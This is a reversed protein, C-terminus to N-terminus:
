NFTKRISFNFTPRAYGIEIKRHTLASVDRPGAYYDSIRTRSAILINNVSFGLNLNPTPKYTWGASLGPNGLFRDVEELRYGIENWGNFYNISWTSKWDTLDQSFGFQYSSADEFTLRRTVGTLPDAVASDQWAVSATLRGGKLPRFRDTPIAATVSLRDDRGDGINGRVDFDGSSTFVPKMDLINSIEQHLLSITISGQGWFHREYAAEFQWHQDPKLDPNGATVNSQNLSVSSIFDGFDLQGLQHEVRLRVLSDPNITWTLLARPKPYFFSRSMSVDGRESITSYEARIGADLVLASSVQWSAQTFVEGRMESVDVNSSPVTVVAGDQTYLSAGSLFNYDAEAGGELSLRQTLPYSLTFRSISEGTDTLSSFREALGSDDVLQVSTAHGLRQLLEVDLRAAGLRRQYSAGLEGNRNHSSFSYNQLSATADYNTGGSFDSQQVLTNASFDGGALPTKVAGNLGVTGGSGRRVEESKVANGSADTETINAEGMDGSYSADRRISVDYSRDGETRSYQLAGGPLIRNTHTIATNAQAVITTSTAKKRIVNAVVSKGQMDIGPASGHIVDIREVDGAVIRQLVAGLYDTKSTPRKGDILVNGSNGSFGRSGDGGDFSFGPLRNIMDMATVPRAAVFFDPRYSEVQDQALARAGAFLAAFFAAALLALARHRM